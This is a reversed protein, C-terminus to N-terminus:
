GDGVGKISSKIFFFGAVCETWEEQRIKLKDGLYEEIWRTKFLTRKAKL